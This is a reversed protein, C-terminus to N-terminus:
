YVQSLIDYSKYYSAEVKILSSFMGFIVVFGHKHQDQLQVQGFLQDSQGLHQGYHGSL